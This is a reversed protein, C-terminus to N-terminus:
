CSLIVAPRQEATEALATQVLQVLPHRRLWKQGAPLLTFMLGHQAVHSHRESAALTKILLEVTPLFPSTRGLRRELFRHIQPASMSGAYMLALLAVPRAKRM